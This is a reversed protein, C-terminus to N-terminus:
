RSSILYVALAGAGVVIAGTLFLHALLSTRYTSTDIERETRLYRQLGVVSLAAGLVILGMGLLASVGTDASDFAFRDVLFGLGVVTLATRQWALLTRENALHDRIAAEPLTRRDLSRDTQARKAADEALADGSSRNM